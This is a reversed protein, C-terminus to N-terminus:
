ATGCTIEAISTDPLMDANLFQAQETMLGQDVSVYLGGRRRTILWELGGMPAIQNSANVTSYVVGGVKAGWFWANEFRRGLQASGVQPALALAAVTIALGRLTRM